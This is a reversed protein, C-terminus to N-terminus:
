GGHFGRLREEHRGIMDKFEARAAAALIRDIFSDYDDARDEVRGLGGPKEEARGYAPTEEMVDYAGRPFPALFLTDGLPDKEGVHRRARQLTFAGSESVDSAILVGHLVTTKDRANQATDAEFAERPYITEVTIRDNVNASSMEPRRALAKRASMKLVAIM